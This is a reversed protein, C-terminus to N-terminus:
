GHRQAQEWSPMSEPEVERARVDMGRDDVHTRDVDCVAAAVVDDHKMFQELRGTGMGGVGVFGVRIRDSPPVGGLARYRAASFALGAVSAKVFTRRSTLPNRITDSM